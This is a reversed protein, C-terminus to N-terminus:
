KMFAYLLCAGIGILLIKPIFELIFKIVYFCLLIAIIIGILESDMTNFTPLSSPTFASSDVITENADLVMANLADQPNVTSAAASPAAIVAPEPELKLTVPM